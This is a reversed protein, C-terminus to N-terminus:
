DPSVFGTMDRPGSPASSADIVERRGPRGTRRGPAATGPAPPDPLGGQHDRAGRRGSRALARGLRGHDAGGGAPRAPVLRDPCRGARSGSGRSRSARRDRHRHRGAPGQACRAPRQGAIVKRAVGLLWAAPDAPLEGFRRWAILFTEAAVDSAQEPGVRALAYRLVPRFHRDYVAVFRREGDETM